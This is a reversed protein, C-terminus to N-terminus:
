RGPPAGYVVDGPGLAMEVYTFEGDPLHWTARGRTWLMRGDVERWGEVPTTWRARARTPAFFRDATSFDRPAGREDVLVRATVTTGRDTLAVDFSADDVPAWAVGPALLMSPAVLVADNLYTVLEGVDLERGRADEVAFLDLPRILMRGSGALYTDRGYVPVGWMRLVMHFVRALDPQSDYQWMEAALWRAGPRPRFRGRLHARFTTDRPRGVVRMFRLYRQAPPPLPALDAESVVPGPAGDAVLGLRPLERFFKRRLM